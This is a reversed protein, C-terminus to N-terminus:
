RRGRTSRKSSGSSPPRDSTRRTRSVPRPHARLVVEDPYNIGPQPPVLVRQSLEALRIHFPSNSFFDAESVRNQSNAYRSIRPMM